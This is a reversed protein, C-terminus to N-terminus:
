LPPHFAVSAGIWTKDKNFDVGLMKGKSTRVLSNILVPAGRRWVFLMRIEAKASGDPTAIAPAYEVKRQLIWGSPDAVARVKEPTVDVEVGLGAFSFIPKLVYNELDTPLEGLESLFHCPPCYQSRIHPLSWKSIKFYWRPHGVWHADHPQHFIHGVDLGKREVEDFIVRNYIRRIKRERGDREYFLERGRRQVSLADVTPVGLMRATVAFDIRTKQKNPEVELLVAEAPDVDAVIVERLAEVYSAEDFGSFYTNWGAPISFHERYARSLLWQFGYLSPFGQLEILRPAVRGGVSALAFDVQLFAPHAADGPLDMGAPIARDAIALYDPAMVQGCIEVAARELERALELPLFIPTESVRFDVPCGGEEELWRKMRAYAEDTFAANYARRIEPIV